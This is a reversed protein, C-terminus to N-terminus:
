KRKLFRYYTWDLINYYVTPPIFNIIWKATKSIRWEELTHWDGCIDCTEKGCGCAKFSETGFKKM